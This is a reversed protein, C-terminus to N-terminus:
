FVRNYNISRNSEVFGLGTYLGLAGTPSDSDVDLVAKELGADAMLQLSRALVAPAIGRGRWARTVGVLEIYASSFGQGPWDEETVTVIVFGVVEDGAMAIACLEPRFTSRGVFSDWQEENTPQSGWHDRFADNRAVRVRESLSRDFPVIALDLPVEAIPEDLSRRLELFYRAPTFGFRTILRNASEAREEAYAMLWGPLTKDSDALRQMGRAELWSMLRRGLGRGRHSPGVGGILIVRVLTEQGPPMLVLGWAVVEDGDLAVVTDSPLDVYSHDFDEELEEVTTTYNPHDVEAIQAECAQIGAVDDMTAARWVIGEADAPLEVSTPRPVRASLPLETM